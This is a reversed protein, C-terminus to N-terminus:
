IRFIEQPNGFGAQSLREDIQEPVHGLDIEPPDDWSTPIEVPPLNSSNEYSPHPNHFNESSTRQSNHLNHNSAGPTHLNAQNHTLIHHNQSLFNHESQEISSSRFHHPSEHNQQSHHAHEHHFYPSSSWENTSNISQQTHLFDWPQSHSRQHERHQSVSQQHHRSSSAQQHQHPQSPSNNQHQHYPSPSSHQHQHFHTSSNHQHQHYQTPSSHQHQYYQATSSPQQQHYHPTQVQSHGHFPQQSPHLNRPSRHSFFNDPNSLRRSTHQSPLYGRLNRNPWHDFNNDLIPSRWPINDVHLNDLNNYLHSMDPNHRMEINAQSYLNHNMRHIDHNNFQHLHPIPQSHHHTNYSSNHSFLFPAFARQRERFRAQRERAYARRLEDNDQQM